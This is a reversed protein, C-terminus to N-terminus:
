WRTPLPKCIVFCEPELRVYGGTELDKLLRSVMARSCGLRSSMEKHTWRERIVRTGDGAPEAITNVMHILRGYVDNLALQRANTTASRVRRIVKALLEFAFEPYQAIHELVAQRNIVACTCREITVVSASRAGGDLSLEGMYEGPGYVGYTIEQGKDGVSYARVRGALLIYITDDRDGEQILLTGTRYHCVQGRQALRQLLPSLFNSSPDEERDQNLMSSLRAKM